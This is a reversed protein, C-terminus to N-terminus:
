EVKLVEDALYDAPLYQLGLAGEEIAHAIRSSFYVDMAESASVGGREAICAIVDAELHEKLFADLGALTEAGVKM